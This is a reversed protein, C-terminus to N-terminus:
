VEGLYARVVGKDCTKTGSRSSEHWLIDWPGTEALEKLADVRLHDERFRQNIKSNVEGVHRDRYWAVAMEGLTQLQGFDEDWLSEDDLSVVVEAGKAEEAMMDALAIAAVLPLDEHEFAQDTGVIDAVVQDGYKHISITIVDEEHDERISRRYIRPKQM